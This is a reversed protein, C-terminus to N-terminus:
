RGLLLRSELKGRHTKTLTLETGDHLIVRYDGRFWPQLEQVRDLNVIASRHVRLFRAPDLRSELATMTERIIHTQRGCHVNIYNDAAEFWDVSELKVFILRGRSRIALRDPGAPAHSRIQSDPTQASAPALRAKARRVSGGLRQDDLPKLLCDFAHFEFARMAHERISSTLIVLPGANGTRRLVEFGDQDPLQVDMVLVDPQCNRLARLTETATSCEGLVHCDPDEQLLRRIRQRAPAEHDVILVTFNQMSGQHFASRALPM